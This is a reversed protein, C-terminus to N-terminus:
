GKSDTLQFRSASRVMFRPPKISPIEFLRELILLGAGLIGADDGLRAFRFVLGQSAQRLAQRRVIRAIQDLLDQGGLELGRGLVIVAPNFLNVLNGVAMGLHDELAEVFSSCMKDGKSAAELVTWGTIKDVQGALSLASSSFGEQLARRARAGLAEAGIIAELCGIGGCKCLPGDRTIRTHGLEGANDSRGRILRGECFVAAGVGARYDVYIMDEAMEGAGRVREALGRARTNSELLFPANFENEFVQKLPVDRWFDIETSMISIGDRSNVLGTDALGIGLLPKDTMEAQELARRSCAILQQVLGEKGGELNTQERVKTIISPKLDMVGAEVADADFEVGLIYGYSENLRLLIQKRGRPNNSVGSEQLKKEQLLEKVLLSISTKRLKMEDHIDVRSLPGFRHALAMIIAKDRERKTGVEKM